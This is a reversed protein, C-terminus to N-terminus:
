PIINLGIFARSMNHACSVRSRNAIALNKNFYTELISLKSRRGWRHSHGDIKHWVTKLIKQFKQEQLIKQAIKYCFKGHRVILRPLWIYSVSPYPPFINFQVYLLVSCKMAIASAWGSQLQWQICAVTEHVTEHQIEYHSSYTYVTLIHQSVLLSEGNVDNVVHPWLAWTSLSFHPPEVSDDSYYNEIFYIEDTPLFVIYSLV